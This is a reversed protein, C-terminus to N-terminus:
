NKAVESINGAKEDESSKSIFIEGGGYKRWADDRREGTRVTMTRPEVLDKPNAIMAAMNHQYACGYNWYTENKPNKALNDPWEGCEPGKAVYRLFSLKVTPKSGDSAHTSVEIAEERMGMRIGLSRIYAVVDGANGSGGGRPASVMLRGQGENRYLGIFGAIRRKEMATMDGDGRPVYVAMEETGQEVLIPHREQVTQPSEWGVVRVGDYADRCGALGAVMLGALIVRMAAPKLGIELANQMKVASKM